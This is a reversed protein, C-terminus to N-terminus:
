KGGNNNSQPELDGKAAMVVSRKVNAQSMPPKLSGASLVGTQTLQPGPVKSFVAKISQASDNIFAAGLNQNFKGLFSFSDSDKRQHVQNGNRLHDHHDDFAPRLYGSTDQQYKQIESAVKSDVASSPSSFEYDLQSPARDHTNKDLISLHLSDLQLFTATSKM